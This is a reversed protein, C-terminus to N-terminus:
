EMRPMETDMGNMHLMIKNVKGSEDKVFTLKANIEKLIFQADAVPFLEMKPQGTALAFLKNNEKSITVVETMMKYKGAYVDLVAPDITIITEEKLKAVNLTQGNQRFIAHTVEGKENKMFKMTADVVKWFFEDESRPFIEFKPQGSLQAFLKNDSATVQMVGGTMFDYRGTYLKLKEASVTTAINASQKEMEKWAFAEAIRNPDFGVEPNSNNSFLVVSLKQKPYYALQSIFGHLGGSHAIYDVGRYKGTALGYGYNM